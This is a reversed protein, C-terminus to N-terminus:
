GCPELYGIVDGTYLLFLDPSDGSMILAATAEQAPVRASLWLAGLLIAVVGIRTGRTKRAM